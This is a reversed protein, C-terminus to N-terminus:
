GNLGAPGVYGGSAGVAKRTIGLVLPRPIRVPEGAGAPRLTVQDADIAMLEGDISDGGQLQCRFGEAAAAPGAALSRIGLIGGLRFEFPAAFVPSRWRVFAQPGAGDIPVFDGPLTGEGPLDLVFGAGPVPRTPREPM